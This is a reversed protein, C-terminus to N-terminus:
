APAQRRQPLLVCVAATFIMAFGIMDTPTPREGLILMSGIVGIVPNALTGLSATATPLRGIIGLWWVYSLGTGILGNYAVALVTQMSVPEFTPMGQFLLFCAGMVVAGLAVQWATIALLDGPIKAWKIYITSAAWCLACGLALLLGAASQASAVPYVLVSLGGVCLAMGLSSATSLRERFVLWAMMSAWIPMSYNIIVVRSTTAALQAFSSFLGFGVMNFMGSVAVHLRAVGRPIALDRRQVRILAFLFATSISFGLFRLTWPSIEQLAIKMIPWSLGWGFTLLVLLIKAKRVEDIKIPATVSM